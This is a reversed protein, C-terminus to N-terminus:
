NKNGADNQGSSMTNDNKVPTGEIVLFKSVSWFRDPNDIVLTTVLNKDKADREMRYSDPPHNTIMRVSKSNVPISLTQTYDIKTFKTRDFNESLKSTKGIGLLGGKRDIIKADKLEKSRGVLYYATHLTAIQDQITKSQSSNMSMTSDLATQLQAVKLNLGNLKENLAV